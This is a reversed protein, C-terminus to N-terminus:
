SCAAAAVESCADAAVAICPDGLGDCVEDICIYTVITRCDLLPPLHDEDGGGSEWEGYTTAAAEVLLLRYARDTPHDVFYPHDPDIEIESEHLVEDLDATYLETVVTTGELTAIATVDGFEAEIFRPEMPRSDPGAPDCAITSALAGLLAGTTIQTIKM